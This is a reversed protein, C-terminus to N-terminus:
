NWRDPRGPSRSLRDWARDELWTTRIYSCSYRILVVTAISPPDTLRARSRGHRTRHPGSGGTESRRIPRFERRGGSWIRPCQRNGCLCHSSASYGHPPQHCTRFDDAIDRQRRGTLPRRKPTMSLPSSSPTRRRFSRRSPHNRIRMGASRAAPPSPRASTAWQPDKSPALGDTGPTERDERSLAQRQATLDRVVGAPTLRPMM